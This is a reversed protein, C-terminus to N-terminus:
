SEVSAAAFQGDLNSGTIQIGELNATDFVQNEDFRFLLERPATNRIQDPQDFLLLDGDNPQIGIIQPGVALLRRDELQELFLKRNADKGASSKGTRWGRAPSPRSRRIVM